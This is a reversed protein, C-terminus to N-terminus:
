RELRMRLFEIDRVFLMDCLKGDFSFFKEKDLLSLEGSYELHFIMFGLDNALLQWYEQPHRTPVSSAMAMECFVIINENGLTSRGGNLVEIEMGETDIKILDVPGCAIKDLTQCEVDVIDTIDWMHSLEGTSANGDSANRACSGTYRRPIAMNVKGVIRGLAVQHIKCIQNLGNISLSDFILPAQIPNPEIADVHGSSGVGICMMLTYYGSHAGVDVCRMGPGVLKQLLVSMHTEWVGFRILSPTISTDNANVIMAANFYTELLIRGNGLYCPTMVPRTM